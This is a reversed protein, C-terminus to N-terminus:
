AACDQSPTGCIRRFACCWTREYRSGSLQGRWGGVNGKEAVTKRRQDAARHGLLRRGPPRPPSRIRSAPRQTLSSPSPRQTKRKNRIETHSPRPSRLSPKNAAAATHEAQGNHLDRSALNHPLAMGSSKGQGETGERLATAAQRLCTSPHAHMRLVHATYHLM